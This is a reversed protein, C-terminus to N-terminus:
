SAADAELLTRMDASSSSSARSFLRRSSALRRQALTGTGAAIDLISQTGIPQSAAEEDVAKEAVAAAVPLRAVAVV